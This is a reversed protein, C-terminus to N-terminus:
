KAGTLAAAFALLDGRDRSLKALRDYEGSQQALEQLTPALDTQRKGPPLMTATADMAEATRGTRALLSLYVEVPAKDQDDAAAEAQEKFYALAEEVQEGLLAKFYLEHHLYVDNFPSRGPFQYSTSLHKGYACLDIAKRLMAPDDLVIAFRVIAQLHTADTHYNDNEFLWERERVLEALTTEAPQSGQQRAIDDRVNTLLEDHIFDVLLGAVAVRDAKPRQHMSSDYTTVCNCLGYSELMLQFGLRPNVGENLAIDIVDEALSEDEQVLAELEKAVTAKDGTPRLYMWAERIRGVSLLGRGVERCAELSADEVQTRAPEPLDEMTKTWIIPQGAKRRAQMLRVDFLDHYQHAGKLHAALKDLAADVGGSQLAQSLEDYIAPASNTM